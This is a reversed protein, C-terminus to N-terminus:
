IRGGSGGNGGLAFPDLGLLANLRGSIDVVVLGPKAGPHVTVTQVLDRLAAMGEPDAASLGKALAAQLRLLQAEYRALTRPHLAIVPAPQEALAAELERREGDLATARPGLM